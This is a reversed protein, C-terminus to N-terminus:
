QALANLGAVVESRSGRYLLADCAAHDMEFWEQCQRWVSMVVLADEDRRPLHGAGSWVSSAKCLPYVELAGGHLVDPVVTWCWDAPEVAPLWGVPCCATGVPLKHIRKTSVPSPTHVWVSTTFQEDSLAALYNSLRHLRDIRM